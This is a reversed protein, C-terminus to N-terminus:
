TIQDKSTLDMGSDIIGDNNVRKMPIPYIVERSMFISAIMM